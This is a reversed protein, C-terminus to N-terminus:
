RRRAGTASDIADRRLAEGIAALKPHHPQLERAMRLQAAAPELRGLRRLTEALNARAPFSAPHITLAHRYAAVAEESRGARVLANGRALPLALSALGTDAAADFAHIAGTWDGLRARALGLDLAAEGWWPAMARARQLALLQAQPSQTASSVLREAVWQTAARPLVSALAILACLVFAANARRPQRATWAETAPRTEGVVLGVFLLVAPQSLPADGLMCLAIVGLCAAGAPWRRQLDRLSTMWAVAGLALAVLGGEIALQLWDGHATTVFVFRRSADELGLTTLHEGQAGLFAQAFGGSGHGILPASSWADLGARALWLRGQLASWGDLSIMALGAAGVATAVAIGLRARRSALWQIATVLAAVVLAVMAVRSQAITLGVLGSALAAASLLREGGRREVAHGLALPAAAALVLGLWNPNGMLGHRAIGPAGSMTQAIAALSAGGLVIVAVRGTLGRRASPDLGAVWLGIGGAALWLGPAFVDPHPSWALSVLQWAGLALVMVVGRPLQRATEARWWAPVELAALALALVITLAVKPTTASAAGPDFALASCGM